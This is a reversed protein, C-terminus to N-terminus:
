LSSPDVKSPVGDRGKLLYCSGRRRFKLEENIEIELYM